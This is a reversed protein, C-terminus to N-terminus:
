AMQVIVYLAVLLIASAILFGIGFPRTRRSITLLSGLFVCGFAVAVGIILGYIGPRGWRVVCHQRPSGRNRRGCGCREAEHRDFAGATGAM